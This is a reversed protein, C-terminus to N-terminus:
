NFRVFLSPLLKRRLEPYCNKEQLLEPVADQKSLASLNILKVKTNTLKIIKTNSQIFNMHLITRHM